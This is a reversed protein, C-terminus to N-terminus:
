FAATEVQVHEQLEVAVGRISLHHNTLVRQRSISPRIFISARGYLNGLALGVDAQTYGLKIRRQKFTKAFAELDDSCIDGDEPCQSSVGAQDEPSSYFQPWSCSTSNSSLRQIIEPREPENKM